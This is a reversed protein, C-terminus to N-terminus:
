SVLIESVCSACSVTIIPSWFVVCEVSKCADSPLTVNCKVDSVNWVCKPLTVLEAAFSMSVNDMFYLEDHAYSENM